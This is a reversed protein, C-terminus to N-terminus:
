NRSLRVFANAWLLALALSLIANWSAMSLGAFAWSVQDCMVVRGAMDTSLLDAGSLGSLDSTGTCSSPGEWWKREVGTHYLGIGATVLTALGGALAVVRNAAFIAVIGAAIAVFHPWRQWLCMKCPAYGLAQFLYAGFLLALSGAAALLMLKRAM